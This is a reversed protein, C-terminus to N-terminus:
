AIRELALEIAQDMTMAEGEAWASQFVAENLRDRVANLSRQYEIQDAPARRSTIADILAQAAGFLRAAREPHGMAQAEGALGSICVATLLTDGVEQSLILSQSFLAVAQPDDGQHHSVYALNHCAIAIRDKDGIERGVALSEEYQVKARDYDNQCRAVEGLINLSYAIGWRHGMERFLALSEGCLTVAQDYNGQAQRVNALGALAFSLSIKDGLERYITVSEACCSGATALDDQEWAAAGLGELSLAIGWRDGLEKFIAFSEDLYQRTNKYGRYRAWMQAMGLLFHGIARKDELTRSIELGESFLVDATAYENQIQAQIGAAYLAKARERTPARAAPRSLLAALHERGENRHNRVDWFRWLAGGLRLGDVAHEKQLSWELAARLNDMEDELRDLWVPQDKGMLKPEVEESFKVFFDLYREEVKGAEGSKLLEEHAYQRITELFQYRIRTNREDTMVLSKNVLQGLYELVDETKLANGGGTGKDVCVSEAAELTWGGVFVSLRRFLAKENRSLLNYSWDITARITQHREIVGRHGATLLRFRDSLRESIQEVSLISTKPAALEIALPIGDLRRCIQAIAPANEQNAKFNPNALSARDIFLQVSEYQIWQEPKPPHAPDPSSLSPVRWAMEGEVGLAERSTALIKLFACHSLLDRALEACAEALHECNDLIILPHRERLFDQLLQWVSKGPPEILGLAALVTPPVLGADNLPSLDVFWVGNPFSDFMEEGIQLALRTKGVGGSGTLTVLRHKSILNKVEEKEKERGIFSTLPIPLNTAPKQTPYDPLGTPYGSSGRAFPLWRAHEQKPIGLKELLITALEKSPKLTGAEIRSLTIRACGIRDALEQQTLDLQRRRQHLWKGFSIGESMSEASTDIKTHTKVNRM